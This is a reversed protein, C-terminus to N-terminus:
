RDRSLGRPVVVLRASRDPVLRTGRATGARTFLPGAPGRFAGVAAEIRLNIVLERVRLLDADYRNANASDPCWPGDTLIAAPLPVLVPGAALTALRSVVSGAPSRSFVCNEGPPYITLQVGAAPPLPGYTARVPESGAVERPPEAEGVYEFSLSAVHDIVPVDSGGAGDYKMLQAFGAARNDRFFYTRATVDAITTEGAPFVLPTDRLDHRLTLVNGAAATISFLEWAGSHGFVGVTMGSRFGCTADGSACGAGPSFTAAGSASPLPAALVAQPADSGVSWFAVRDDNFSGAPDAGRRGIRLPFVAAAASRYGNVGTLTVPGNGAEILDRNLADAAGRLRQRVDAAEPQTQFAGGAPDLMEFVASTVLLAVTTAIVLEVLSFGLASRTGGAPRVADEQDQHRRAV